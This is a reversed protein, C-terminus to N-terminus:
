IIDKVKLSHDKATWYMFFVRECICLSIFVYLCMCFVYVSVYVCLCLCQFICENLRDYLCSDNNYFAIKHVDTELWFRSLHLVYMMSMFVYFKTFDM